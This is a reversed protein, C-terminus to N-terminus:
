GSREILLQQATIINSPSKTGWQASVEIDAGITTNITSAFVNAILGKSLGLDYLGTGVVSGGVGISRVVFLGEFRWPVNSAGSPVAVAGSVVVPVGGIRIRMNLTNAGSFTIGRYMGLLHQRDGADYAGDPIPLLCFSLGCVMNLMSMQKEATDIAM